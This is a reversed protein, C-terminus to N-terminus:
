PQKGEKQEIQQIIPNNSTKNEKGNNDVNENEDKRKQAEQYAEVHQMRTYFDNLYGPFANDIIVQKDFEFSMRNSGIESIRDTLAVNICVFAFAFLTIIQSFGWVDLEQKVFPIVVFATVAIVFFGKSIAQMIKFVRKEKYEVPHLAHKKTVLEDVSKRVNYVDIYTMPRTGQNIYRTLYESAINLIYNYDNHVIFLGCCNNTIDGLSILLSSLSLGLLINNNIEFLSLKSGIAIGIYALGLIFFISRSKNM